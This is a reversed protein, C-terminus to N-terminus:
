LRHMERALAAREFVADRQPPYFRKAPRDARSAWASGAESTASPLRRWLASLTWRAGVRPRFDAISAM